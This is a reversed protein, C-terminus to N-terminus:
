GIPQIARHRMALNVGLEFYGVDTRCPIFYQSSGGVSGGFAVRHKEGIVVSPLSIGLSLGKFRSKANGVIMNTIEGIADIVDPHDITLETGTFASAIRCAVEHPMSLVVTGDADGVIGIIGSVRYAMENKPKPAPEYVQVDLKTMAKFVNHIPVTFPNVNISEM